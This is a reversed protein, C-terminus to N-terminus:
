VVCARTYLSLGTSRVNFIECLKNAACELYTELKSGSVGVGFEDHDQNPVFTTNLDPNGGTPAVVCCPTIHFNVNM